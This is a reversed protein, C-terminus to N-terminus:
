NKNEGKKRKQKIPPSIKKEFAILAYSKMSIVLAM